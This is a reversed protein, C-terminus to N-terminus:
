LTIILAFTLRNRSFENPDGYLKEYFTPLLKLIHPDIRFSFNKALLTTVGTYTQWECPDSYDILKM